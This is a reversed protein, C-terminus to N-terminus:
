RRGSLWQELQAAAACEADLAAVYQAHAAAKGARSASTWEALALTAETEALLWDDYLLGASVVTRTRGGMFVPPATIFPNESTPM